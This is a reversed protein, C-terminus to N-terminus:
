HRGVDKVRTTFWMDPAPSESGVRSSTFSLFTGDWSIFPRSDHAPSSLAALHIASGWPESTNSRTAYWLDSDGLTGFRTSDWFITRGDHTVSARNDGASSNPGGQVLTAPAGDVSQYLKGGEGTPPGPPRRSFIMVERGQDDEYFAPAEETMGPANITPGLSTPATWGKPGLKSVYLDGAPDGGFGTFYLRNGPAITPCVENGSTNVPAPLRVPDGFGEAKNSRRAMYIDANGTRFSLFFIELGDRSLSACGDVTPTNLSSSSDPLTELGAPAGWGGFPPMAWTATALVLTAGAVAPAAVLLNV